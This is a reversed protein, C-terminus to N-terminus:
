LSKFELLINADRLDKFSYEVLKIEDVIIEMPQLDYQNKFQNFTDVFNENIDFDNHDFYGLTSWVTLFKRDFKSEIIQGLNNKLYCVIENAITVFERNGKRDPNGMAVVTGNSAFPIQSNDFGHWTGPRFEDFKLTIKSNNKQDNFYNTLQEKILYTFYNNSKEQFLNKTSITLLTSHLNKAPVFMYHLDDIKNIINIRIQKKYRYSFFAVISLGKKQTTQEEIMGSYLCIKRFKIKLDRGKQKEIYELTPVSM